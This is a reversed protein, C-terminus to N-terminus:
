SMAWIQSMPVTLSKATLEQTCSNLSHAEEIKRCRLNKSAADIALALGMLRRRMKKNSGYVGCRYVQDQSVFVETKGQWRENSKFYNTTFAPVVAQGLNMGYSCQTKVINRNIIVAPEGAM